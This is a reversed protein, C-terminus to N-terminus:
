ASGKAEQEESRINKSIGIWTSPILILLLGALHMINFTTGDWFVLDMLYAFAATLLGALGGIVAGILQMSKALFVQFLTGCLGVTSLLVIGRADFLSEIHHHGGGMFYAALAVALMVITLHLALVAAPVDRVYDTLFYGLGSLFVSAIAIFLVPLDENFHMGLMMATGLIMVGTAVWFLLRFRAGLVVMTIFAIWIPRTGMLTTAEAATLEAVAYYIGALYLALAGSRLLIVPRLLEFKRINPWAIPLVFVMGFVARALLGTQWGVEKSQDLAKVAELGLALLFAGSVLLM